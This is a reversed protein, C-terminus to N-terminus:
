LLILWNHIYLRKERSFELNLINSEPATFWKLRDDISLSIPMNHVDIIAEKGLLSYM